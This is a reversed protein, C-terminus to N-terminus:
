HRGPRPYNAVMREATEHYADLRATAAGFDGADAKDAVELLGNCLADYDLPEAKNRDPRNAQRRADGDPFGRRLRHMESVVTEAVFRTLVADHRELTGDLVAVYSALEAMERRFTAPEDAEEADGVARLYAVLARRDAPGLGLAFTQDFHGVVAQYDAWRGDHGYPASSNANLLTPTRFMGGTGVDHPRSDTFGAEPKHCDACALGAMARRPTRFLVEGRREESSANRVQGLPGLRPNPLFEFENMYAVLADLLLPAPEPGAFEDVIVHRAFERLSGIRGDRGFPGLSRIGRLSPIDTHNAAHDNAAANFLPGTPDLGAPRASLGPIFFAQNVHGNVHCSNCSLGARRATEGYLLPSSFATNGLAVLWSQEGGAMESHLRQAPFRDAPPDIVSGPPLDAAAAAGALLLAALLPRLVQLGM